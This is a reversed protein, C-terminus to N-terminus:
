ATMPSEPLNYTEGSMTGTYRSINDRAVIIVGLQNSTSHADKTAPTSGKTSRHCLNSVSILNSSMAVRWRAKSIKCLWYLMGWTTMLEMGRSVHSREERGADTCGVESVGWRRQIVEDRGVGLMGELEVDIM